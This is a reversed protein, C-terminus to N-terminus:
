DPIKMQEPHGRRWNEFHQVIEVWGARYQLDPHFDYLADVYRQVAAMSFVDQALFVVCPCDIPSGDAKTVIYKPNDMGMGGIEDLGTLSHWFTQPHSGETVGVGM